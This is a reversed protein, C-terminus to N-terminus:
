ARWFPKSAEVEAHSPSLALDNLMRQDMEALEARSRSRRRWTRIAAAPIAVARVFNSRAQRAQQAASAAAPKRPLDM